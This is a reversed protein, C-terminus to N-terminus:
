KGGNLATSLVSWKRLAFWPPRCHYYEPKHVHFDCLPFGNPDPFQSDGGPSISLRLFMEKAVDVALDGNQELTTNANSPNKLAWVIFKKVFYQRLKCGSSTVDYLCNLFTRSPCKFFMSARVHDCVMDQLRPIFWKEGMSYVLLWCFPEGLQERLSQYIPLSGSYLWHVFIDFAKADDEPLKLEGTIGEQFNGNFAAAFFTSHYCLLKKHLRYKKSSEGVIM